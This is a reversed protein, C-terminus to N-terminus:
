DLIDWLDDAKLQKKSDRKPETSGEEQKESDM